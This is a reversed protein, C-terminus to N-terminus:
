ACNALVATPLFCRSAQGAGALATASNTLNFV